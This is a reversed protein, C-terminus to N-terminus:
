DKIKIDHFTESIKDFKGLAEKEVVMGLGNKAKFRLILAIYGSNKNLYKTEIYEFSSPYQLQNKVLNAFDSSSGVFRTLFADVPASAAPNPNLIPNEHLKYRKFALNGEERLEQAELSDLAEEYMIEVSDLKESMNFKKYFSEAKLQLDLYNKDM